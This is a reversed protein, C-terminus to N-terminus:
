GLFDAEREASLRSFLPEAFYHGRSAKRTEAAGRLGWEVQDKLRPGLAQRKFAVQFEEADECNSSRSHLINFGGFKPLVSARIETPNQRVRNM